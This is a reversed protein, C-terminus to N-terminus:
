LKAAIATLFAQGDASKSKDDLSVRVVYKSKRMFAQYDALLNLNEKAADGVAPTIDTYDSSLVASFAGTAGAVDTQDFIWVQATIKGTSDTYFAEVMCAFKNTQYKVSGGNILLDLQKFTAAAKHAGKKNYGTVAGDAPLASSTGCVAPTMDAVAQDPGAADAKSNNSKDDDSCALALLAPICLAIIWRKM